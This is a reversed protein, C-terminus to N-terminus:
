DDDRERIAKDVAERARQSKMRTSDEGFETGIIVTIPRLEKSGNNGIANSTPATQGGATGSSAAPATGGSTSGAGLASAAAGAAIAVAGHLAASKFHAAATPSGIALAGFGLATQSAAEIISQKGRAMIGAAATAKIAGIVSGQGTVLAEYGAGIGATFASFVGGLAEFSQKYADFEEIPGFLAELAGTRSARTAELEARWEKTLAMTREMEVRDLLAQEDQLAGYANFQDTSAKAGYADRLASEARAAGDASFRAQGATDDMGGVSVFESVDRDRKAWEAASKKRQDELKKQEKEFEKRANGLSEIGATIQPAIGGGWGDDLANGVASSLGGNFMFGLGQAAAGGRDLGYAKRIDATIKQAKKLAEEAPAWGDAVFLALEATVQKISGGLSSFAKRTEDIEKRRGPEKAALADFSEDVFKVAKGGVELAQNWPGLRGIMDNLGKLSSTFGGGIQGLTGKLSSFGSGGADVMRQLRGRTAEAQIGITSIAQEVNIAERAVGEAADEIKTFDSAVKDAGETKLRYIVRQLQDSLSM